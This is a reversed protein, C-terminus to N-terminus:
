PTLPAPQRASTFVGPIRSGCHGCTGDQRLHLDLLRYGDRQIVVRGCAPCCTTEGEPDRVNGTYVYKLGAERALKRARTLTARPTPPRDLVQYDPHFASFHLPVEAGLNSGIWDSLRRIDDDSDNLGPILLTTIETWVPTEHVLYRLTDLVPELTGGVM